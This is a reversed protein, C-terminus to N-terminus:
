EGQIEKKIENKEKYVPISFRITTEVGPISEIQLAADEGYALVLRRNLNYLGISQVPSDEQRMRQRIEDLREQTFGAGNDTVQFLIRQCQQLIAIFIEGPRTNQLGHSLSNEVLPQLLFKICKNERTDVDIDWSVRFAGDFRLQQIQLYKETNEIEKELLVYRDNNVLAYYLVGSLLDIMHSAENQQGTLKVTKWFINKLTNFLFHPNLQSQLFSFYMAELRYKKEVLQRDLANRELFSKVINQMIFGYVDASPKITPMEQGNEAAEILQVVASIDKTNRRTTIYAITSGLILSVLIAVEVLGLIDHSMQYLAARPILSLYTVGYASNDERAIFYSKELISLDDNDLQKDSLQEGSSCLVDGEQDLLLISQGSFSSYDSFFANLYNVKINLLLIGIPTQKNSAYIRKYVSLVNTSYATMAYANINRLELWQKQEPPTKEVKQMWGTDRFNTENALGVFSAFFNGRTNNLYIYISHLYPKSNVNSDVFTKIMYSVDLNEKDAYGNELLEELRLMVHPSVSYNLSQADAESFMLETSERIRGITRMNNEIISKKANSNIIYIAMWGLLIIVLVVPLTVLLFNRFFFRRKMM